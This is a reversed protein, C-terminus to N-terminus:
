VYNSASYKSISGGIIDSCIMLSLDANVRLLPIKSINSCNWGYYNKMIVNPLMKLYEEPVGIKYGSSKMELLRDSLKKIKEYYNDLKDLSYPSDSSRYIFNDNKGM